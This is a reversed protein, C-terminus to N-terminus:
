QKKRTSIMMISLSGLKLMAVSLCSGYLGLIPLFIIGSLLGALWGGALDAAYILGAKKGIGAEKGFYLRIALSFELGLFLGPIFSLGAFVLDPCYALKALLSIIVALFYSFLVVCADLIVFSILTRRDAIKEALLISGLAVGAMFFSILLGIKYYLYGYIVQFSFILILSAFMGFFGTTFMSYVIARQLRHSSNRLLIRYFFINFLAIVLFVIGPNLNQAAEFTGALGSSFQKNWLMVAQFVAIPLFDRNIKHTAGQMTKKYWDSYKQEFRYDLYQPLLLNPIVGRERMRRSVEASSLRTIDRSDSALVIHYDGPIVRVYDFGSSVANLISGNLDKLEKGMYTLSGPLWFALIGDHDLRKKAILFFEESFLRNICLDAPRSIGLMILDYRKRNNKLYFRADTNVVKVRPDRLERSTLETPYEKLMSIIAPDPEAYEISGLPYKLCENILGGAGAGIVLIDRPQPHFLLPLNAFEEVFAMDPYPAYVIPIGNYFFTSQGNEGTVVVNGYVSNRYGLIKKGHWQEKLTFNNISNLRGGLFFVSFIVVFLSIFKFIRGSLFKFLVLYALSNLLLIFFILQYPNFHPIFLYTLAVGGALSGAAEWGYLKAATSARKSVPQGLIACACSFLGSLSFNLPLIILLSSIFIGTLSIAEGFPISLINRLNRCFYVAPFLYLASFLQLIIFFNVRHKLIDALKGAVYVGLAGSIVWNSLIVGLTLENGSFIVLFERLLVTQGFIASIGAILIALNFFFFM